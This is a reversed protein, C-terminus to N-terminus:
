ERDHHISQADINLRYGKLVPFASTTGGPLGGESCPLFTDEKATCLKPIVTIPGTLRLVENFVALVRTYLAFDTYPVDAEPDPNVAVVHQYLKEQEDSYLALLALVYTLTHAASYIVHVHNM